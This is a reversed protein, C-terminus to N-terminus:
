KQMNSNNLFKYKDEILQAVACGKWCGNTCFESIYEDRKKSNIFTMTFLVSESNVSECVIRQSKTSSFYPCEIKTTIRDMKM